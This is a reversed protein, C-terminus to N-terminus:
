SFPHNPPVGIKPFWWITSQSADRSSASACLVKRHVYKPTVQVPDSTSDKQLRNLIQHRPVNQSFIRPVTEKPQDQAIEQRKWTYNACTPVESPIKKMFNLPKWAQVETAAHHGFLIVQSIGFIGHFDWSKM